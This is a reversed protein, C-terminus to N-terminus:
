QSHKIFRRNRFTKKRINTSKLISIKMDNIENDTLYENSNFIRYLYSPNIVINTVENGGLIVSGIIEFTDCKNPRNDPYLFCNIYNSITFSRSKSFENELTTKYYTQKLVDYSDPNDNVIFTEDDKYEFKIDYYKADLIFLTKNVQRVIDPKLASATYTLGNLDNWIPKFINRNYKNKFKEDYYEDKFVKQLTYEWITSFSTTGYLSISGEKSSGFSKNLLNYLAKLLDIKRSEFVNSLENEIIYILEDLTGINTYSSYEKYILNLDPNLFQGYKKICYDIAWKHLETIKNNTDLTFETSITSDYIPYSNSIFPDIYEITYQWDTNGNGNLVFKSHYNKYLGYNLFDNIIYDAISIESISSDEFNNDLYFEGVTDESVAKKSTDNKYTKFIKIIDIVQKNKSEESITSLENTSYKPLSVILNDNITIVGVFNFKLKTNGEFIKCISSQLLLKIEDATLELEDCIYNSTIKYPFGEYVYIPNINLEM